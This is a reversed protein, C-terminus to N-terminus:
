SCGPVAGVRKDSSARPVAANKAFLDLLMAESSKRAKGFGGRGVQQLDCFEGSIRSIQVKILWPIGHDDNDSQARQWFSILLNGYIGVHDGGANRGLEAPNSAPWPAHLFDEKARCTLNLEVGQTIGQM